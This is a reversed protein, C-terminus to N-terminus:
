GGAVPAPPSPVDIVPVPIPQPMPLDVEPPARPPILPPVEQPAPTPLHARLLTVTDDAFWTERGAAFARAFSTWSANQGPVFNNM